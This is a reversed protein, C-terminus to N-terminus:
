LTFAPPHFIEKPNTQATINKFSSFLYQSSFNEGPRYIETKIMFHPTASPAESGAPALSGPATSGAPAPTYYARVGIASPNLYEVMFLTLILLLIANNFRNEKM